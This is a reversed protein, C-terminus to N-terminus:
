SKQFKSGYTPKIYYIINQVTKTRPTKRREHHSNKHMKLGIRDNENLDHKGISNYLKNNAYSETTYTQPQFVQASYFYTKVILFLRNSFSCFLM